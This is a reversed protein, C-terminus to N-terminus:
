RNKKPKDLRPQPRSPILGLEVLTRIAEPRTYSTFQAEIWQDLRALEDEPMRVM